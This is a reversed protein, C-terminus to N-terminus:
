DCFQLALCSSVKKSLALVMNSSRTFFWISQIQSENATFMTRSPRVFQNKQSDCLIVFHGHWVRLCVKLWYLCWTQIGRLFASLSPKIEPPLSCPGQLILLSIKKMLWMLNCFQQTSCSSLSKLFHFCWTQIGRLFCPCITNSNRQCHFHETFSSCALKKQSDCWIM